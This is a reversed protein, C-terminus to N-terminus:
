SVVGGPNRTGTEPDVPSPDPTIGFFKELSNEEPAARRKYVYPDNKVGGGSKEVRGERILDDLYPRVTGEPIETALSIQNPNLWADDLSRFLM